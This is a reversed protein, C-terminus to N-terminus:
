QALGTTRVLTTSQGSVNYNTIILLLLVLTLLVMSAERTYSTVDNCLVSYSADCSACSCNGDEM